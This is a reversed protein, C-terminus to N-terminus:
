FINIHQSVLLSDRLVDLMVSCSAHGHVPLALGGEAGGGAFPPPLQAREELRQGVRAEQPQRVVGDQDLLKRLAGDGEPARARGLHVAPGGLLREAARRVLQELAAEGGGALGDEALELLGAPPLALEALAPAAAQLGHDVAPPRQEGVRGSGVDDLHVAVHGPADGHLDRQALGLLVQLGHEVVGGDADARHAQVTADERGVRREFPHQLHLQPLRLCPGEAVQHM